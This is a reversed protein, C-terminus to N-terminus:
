GASNTNLQALIFVADGIVIVSAVAIVVTKANM